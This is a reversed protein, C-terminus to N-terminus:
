PFVPKGGYVNLSEDSRFGASGSELSNEERSDYPTKELLCM